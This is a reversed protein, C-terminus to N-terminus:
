TLVDGICVIGGNVRGGMCAHVCVSLLNLLLAMVSMHGEDRHTFSLCSSIAHCCERERELEVTQVVVQIM